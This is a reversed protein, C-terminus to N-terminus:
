SVRIRVYSNYILAKRISYRKMRMTNSNEENSHYRINGVRNIENLALM